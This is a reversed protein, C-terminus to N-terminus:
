LDGVRYHISRKKNVKQMWKKRVAECKKCYLIVAKSNGLSCGKGVFYRYKANAMDGIDYPANIYDRSDEPQQSAFGSVVCEVTGKHLRVKHFPCIKSQWRDTIDIVENRVFSTLTLVVLLLISIKLFGYM